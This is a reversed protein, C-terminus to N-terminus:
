QTEKLSCFVDKIYDLFLHSRERHSLQPRAPAARSSPPHAAPEQHLARARRKSVSALPPSELSCTDGNPNLEVIASVRRNGPTRGTNESHNKHLGHRRASSSQREQARNCVGQWACVPSKYEFEVENAKAQLSNFRVPCQPQLRDRVCRLPLPSRLMTRVTHHSRNDAPQIREQFM